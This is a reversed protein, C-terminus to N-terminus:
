SMAGHIVALPHRDAGKDVDGGTHLLRQAGPSIM